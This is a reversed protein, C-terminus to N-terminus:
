LWIHEVMWFMRIRKRQLLMCMFGFFCVSFDLDHDGGGFLTMTKGEMHSIILKEFLQM